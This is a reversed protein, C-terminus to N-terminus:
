NLWSTVAYRTGDTVPNVSHNYIYNSPFVIMQNAQPAVRINFRPFEIEGGRYGENMYYVTSVTRPFSPHDDIHNLFHQGKGYKLIGYAEHTQTLVGYYNKYDEEIKSFNKFFINQIQNLIEDRPNEAGDIIRGIYPVTIISTDRISKNEGNEEGTKVSAGVWELIKMEAAQEIEEVMSAPDELVDLYLFIGPALEHKKM